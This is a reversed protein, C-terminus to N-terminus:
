STFGVAEAFVHLVDGNDQQVTSVYSNDSMDDFRCGTGVIRVQVDISPEDANAIVWLVLDPQKLWNPIINQM